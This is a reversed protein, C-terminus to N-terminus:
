NSYETVNRLIVTSTTAAFIYKPVVNSCGASTYGCAPKSSFAIVTSFATAPTATCGTAPTVVTATTAAAPAFSRSSISTKRCM